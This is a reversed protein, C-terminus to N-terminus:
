DGGLAVHKNAPMETVSDAFWNKCFTMINCVVERSEIGEGLKCVSAGLRFVM